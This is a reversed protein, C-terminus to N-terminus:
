RLVVLKRAQRWDGVTARCFYIGSAVEAGTSDRGDWALTHEGASLPGSHLTAVRRGSIHYVDVRAIAPTPLALAFTTSGSFPNPRGPSLALATVEGESVGSGDQVYAELHVVLDCLDTAGPLSQDDRTSLTLTATYLSDESATASDFAIEFEAATGGITQPSFGGVFSFRGDGGVIEADYVELIAQLSGYSDNYVSFSQNAHGGPDAAGFDLTDEQVVGYSALSPSAHAVVTGSLSVYWTPDEGDNSDIELDGSKEGVTGTSIDIEHDLHEGAGLSYSSGPATFGSPATMSYDLDGSPDPAINTVTLTESASAGVIVSGFALASDADIRPPVSLDLFVPVHDSAAELADAVAGSVIINTPDNIPNNLRLGDNGFATYSGSVYSMGDGDDLAYSTLVFDFRDDMGGWSSQTSQTHTTRLSYNDHWSGGMNIPDKSRGDNDPQWGILMQYATESSTYVNFDGAVMFNSDSPYDNLYDRIDTTMALRQQQDTADNGAKLHTSLVSFEADSSTYGDLRFGYVSTWRVDTYLQETFISDVVATKYFCANDTDPGNAFPMFAYEGPAIQQMVNNYFYVVSIASEVEQLVLVDPDIEALVTRFDASRAVYDTPWNQVNYTCVRVAAAPQALAIAATLAALAIVSPFRNPKL